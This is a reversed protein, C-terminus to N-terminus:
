GEEHRDEEEYSEHRNKEEHGEYEKQCSEENGKQCRELV